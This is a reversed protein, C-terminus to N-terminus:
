RTASSGLLMQSRLASSILNSVAQRLCRPSALAFSPFRRAKPTSKPALQRVRLRRCVPRQSAQEVDDHAADVHHVPQEVQAEQAADSADLMIAGSEFDDLRTGLTRQAIPRARDVITMDGDADTDSSDQQKDTATEAADRSISASRRVVEHPPELERRTLGSAPSNTGGTSGRTISSVDVPVVSLARARTPSSTMSPPAWLGSSKGSEQEAAESPADGGQGGLIFRIPEADQEEEDNFNWFGKEAEWWEM